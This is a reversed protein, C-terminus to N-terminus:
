QLTKKIVELSSPDVGFDTVRRVDGRAVAFLIVTAAPDGTSATPNATSAREGVQRYLGDLAIVSGPQFELHALRLLPALGAAPRVKAIVTRPLELALATFLGVTRLWPTVRVLDDRGIVPALAFLVDGTEESRLWEDVSMTNGL